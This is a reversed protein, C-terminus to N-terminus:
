HPLPAAPPVRLCSRKREEDAEQCRGPPPLRQRHQTLVATLSAAAPEGRERKRNGPDKRRTSWGQSSITVKMKKTFLGQRRGPNRKLLWHDCAPASPVPLAANPFLGVFVRGRELMESGAHLGALVVRGQPAPPAPPPHAAWLWWSATLYGGGPCRGRGVGPLVSLFPLFQQEPNYVNRLAQRKRKPDLGFELFTKWKSRHLQGNCASCLLCLHQAGPELNFASSGKGGWFRGAWGYFGVGDRTGLLGPLSVSTKPHNHESGLKSTQLGVSSHPRLSKQGQTPISLEANRSLLRLMTANDRSRLFIRAQTQPAAAWNLASHPFM